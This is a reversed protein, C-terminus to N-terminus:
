FRSFYDKSSYGNAVSNLFEEYLRQRKDEFKRKFEMQPNEHKSHFRKISLRECQISGINAM